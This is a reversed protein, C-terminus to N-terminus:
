PQVRLGAQRALEAQRPDFTLFDGCGLVRAAAVHLVDLARHGGTMTHQASLGEAQRCVAEWDCARPMLRGGAADQGILALVRRAQAETATRRVVAARIANKLEFAGFSTLPLVAQTTRQFHDAVAFHSDGLYLSVLYSTDAYGSL